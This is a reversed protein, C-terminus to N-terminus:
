PKWIEESKLDYLDFDEQTRSVDEIWTKHAHYKVSLREREADQVTLVIGSLRVQWEKNRDQSGNPHYLKAIRATAIQDLLQLLGNRSDLLLGKEDAWVIQQWPFKMAAAPDPEAYEPLHVLGPVPDWRYLDWSYESFVSNSGGPFSGPMINYPANLGITALYNIARQIDM